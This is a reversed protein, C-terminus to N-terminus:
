LKSDCTKYDLQRIIANHKLKTCIDIFNFLFTTIRQKKLKKNFKNSKM